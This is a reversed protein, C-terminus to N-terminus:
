VLVGNSSHRFIGTRRDTLLVHVYKRFLEKGLITELLSVGKQMTSTAKEEQRLAFLIGARVFEFIQLFPGTTENSYVMDMQTVFVKPHDSLSVMCDKHTRGRLYTRDARKKYGKSEKKSIKRSVQRRLDLSTIGSVEHFVDNEIYNYLPKESVHLEPHSIVIQYPSQGQKLM